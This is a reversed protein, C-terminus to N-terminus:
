SGKKPTKPAVMKAARALIDDIKINGPDGHSNEPMHQHGYVGASLAWEKSTLRVGNNGYSKPYPLFEKPAVLKLGHRRHLDALIRAVWQRQRASADPWYVYDVGAVRSRSTGGWRKANRPDCTGILEIQIANQTNTEVGGSENRLARSSKDDPFHVRWAGKVFGSKMYPEGLPPMGTYNPATSGGNYDPWSTGETTHLVVVLNDPKIHMTSGPYNDQFWQPKPDAARYHKM